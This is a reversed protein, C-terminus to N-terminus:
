RIAAANSDAPAGEVDRELTVAYFLPAEMPGDRTELRLEHVPGTGPPVDLSVAYVFSTTDSARVEGGRLEPGSVGIWGIRASPMALDPQGRTVVDRIMRVELPTERGAADRLVVTAARSPGQRPDVPIHVLMLLHVRRAAVGPVPVEASARQTPHLSAAAGGWSLQVGGDVRWDIGHLRQPGMPLTPTDGGMSGRVPWGGGNLTANIAPALDLPVFRPEPAAAPEPAFVIEAPATAPAQPQAAADAARLRVRLADLAAPDLPADANRPELVTALQELFGLDHATAPVRWALWRGRASRALVTGGDPALMVEAIVDDGAIPAALLGSLQEGRVLDVVQVGNRAALVARRGGADLAFVGLPLGTVMGPVDRRSGDAAFRTLMDGTQRHAVVGDRDALLHPMVTGHQLPFRAIESCAALDLRLLAGRRQPLSAYMWATRGDAAFAVDGPFNLGEPALSPCGPSGDLALVALRVSSDRLQWNGVLLRQGTPDLRFMQVPGAPAATEVRLVGRELDVLHIRERFSDGAYEGTALALVPAAAALDVRLPSQPLVIPTGVPSGDALDIVHVTRGAVVALRRGDHSREAIRVPDPFAWVPSLPADTFLERVQVRHGDVAVVSRGDFHQTRSPLPAARAAQLAPAPLRWLGISGDTGAVALLRSPAHVGYGHGMMSRRNRIRAPAAVAVNDFSARPPLTWAHLEPGIALFLTDGAVQVARGEDPPGSIPTMRPARTAVDWAAITGDEARAALTRAEADFELWRVPAAPSARLAEHRGDRPDVLLVRGDATGLALHRGDASFRWGRIMDGPPLAIRWRLALSGLDHLRAESSGSTGLWAGGDATPLWSDTQLEAVFRHRPGIPQWGDIRFFQGSDPFRHSPDVRWRVLAIRADDSAVMDYFTADIFPPALLAGGRADLPMSDAVRPFPFPSQHPMTAILRSGDRTYRLWGHPMGAWPLAPAWAQTSTTWRESLTATDFARVSREGSAAHLTVAFSGGDPAMALSHISFGQQVRVLDVLRPANELLTGIRQREAAAEATAGAAEMEGLNAVLDRLGRFGDGEALAAQAAQARLVWSRDRAQEANADARRWQVATATLGAMLALVFAGLAAAMRPERRAARLLREPASLPRVSVPRGDLFASLDQVLAQAGPYRQASDKELCKLCIAELDAPVEPRLARVREAAVTAVRKLTEQPTAALFPPRGTLLEYLIAGLGYVDTAPTLKRTKLTAQEPAMYSPTGSVEDSDVAMSEDLRRALGFDAVQPEGREDLLVNGPKLDLHLVGLRHAYDVAEAVTRMMAAAERPALPGLRALRGALSEGRVLAMSFYNLEHRVGVEYIAVINPHQMRAASQAERHFREVFQKSAWPGAALLKVAVERDLSKQRARYVVGMGGQGLKECLEYDGFERQQPDDLDLELAEPPLFALHRSQTAQLLPLALSSSGLALDALRAQLAVWDASGADGGVVVTPRSSDLPESGM